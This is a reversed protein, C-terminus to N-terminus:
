IAELRPKRTRRNKAQQKPTAWRCNGPEYDGDNNIRDISMGSPRAGMDALFNEFVRWRECVAIGRSAYDELGKSGDGRQCMSRWSIYTPTRASHRAQGHRKNKLGLATMQERKQCGCSKVRGSKIDSAAKVVEAGCICRCRWMIHGAVRASEEKLFTM